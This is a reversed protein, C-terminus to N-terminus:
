HACLMQARVCRDKMCLCMAPRKKCVHVRHKGVHVCIPTAGEQARGGSGRGGIDRWPRPQGITFTIFSLVECHRRGFVDNYSPLAGCDRAVYCGRGEQCPSGVLIGAPFSQWKSKMLYDIPHVRPNRCAVHNGFSAWLSMCLLDM